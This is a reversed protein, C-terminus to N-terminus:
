TPQPENQHLARAFTAQHARSLASARTHASRHLFRDVQRLSDRMEACVRVLTAGGRAEEFMEANLDRLRDIADCLAHARTSFKAVRLEDSAPSAVAALLCEAVTQTNFRLLREVRRFVASRAALKPDRDPEDSEALLYDLSVGLVRSARILLPMPPLRKGQEWLSPQTSNALNLAQAFECQDMGNIRRAAILREGIVRKLVANQQARSPTSNEEEAEDDLSEVPVDPAKTDDEVLAALQAPLEWALSNIPAAEVEPVSV